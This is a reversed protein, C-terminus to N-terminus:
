GGPPLPKGCFRDAASRRESTSRSCEAKPADTAVVRLRIRIAFGVAAFDEDEAAESLRPGAPSADAEHARSRPLILRGPADM